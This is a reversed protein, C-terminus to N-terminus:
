DLFYALLERGLVPPRGDVHRPDIRQDVLEGPLAGLLLLFGQAREGLELALELGLLAFAQVLNQRVAERLRVVRPWGAAARSLPWSRSLSRPWSRPWRRPLSTRRLLLLAM